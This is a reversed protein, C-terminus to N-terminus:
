QNNLFNAAEGRPLDNADLWADLAVGVDPDALKEILQAGLPESIRTISCTAANDPRCFVLTVITIALGFEPQ